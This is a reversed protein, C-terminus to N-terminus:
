TFAEDQNGGKSAMRFQEKLETKALQGSSPEEMISWVTAQVAGWDKARRRRDLYIRENIRNSQDTDLMTLMKQDDFFGVFRSYCCNSMKEADIGWFLLEEKFEMPCISGPMHLGRNQFYGLVVSFCVPHREFFYENHLRTYLKSAEEAGHTEHLKREISLWTDKSIEFRTGSVNVTVIGNVDM